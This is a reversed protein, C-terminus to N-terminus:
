AANSLSNSRARLLLASLALLLLTGPESVSISINDYFVSHPGVSSGGIFVVSRFPEAQIRGLPFDDFSGSVPGFTATALLVGTGSPGSYAQLKLLDGPNETPTEQGYDGWEISFM